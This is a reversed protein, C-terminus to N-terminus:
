DMESFSNKCIWDLCRANSSIMLSNEFHIFKLDSSRTRIEGDLVPTSKMILMKIINMLEKREEMPIHYIKTIIKM